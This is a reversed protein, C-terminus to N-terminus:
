SSLGCIHSTIQLDKGFWCTVTWLSCPFVMLRNFRNCNLWKGSVIFTQLLCWRKDVTDPEKKWQQMSILIRNNVYVNWTFSIIFQYTDRSSIIIVGSCMKILFFYWFPLSLWLKSSNLSYCLDTCPSNNYLITKIPIEEFIATVSRTSSTLNSRQLRLGFSHFNIM